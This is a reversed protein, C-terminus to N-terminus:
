WDEGGNISTNSSLNSIWSEAQEQVDKAWSYVHYSLDPGDCDNDPEWNEDTVYEFEERIKRAAEYIQYFPKEDCYLCSENLTKKISEQIIKRLQSENIKM